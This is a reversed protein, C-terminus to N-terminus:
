RAREGSVSLLEGRHRHDHRDPSSTRVRIPSSPLRLLRHAFWVTGDFTTAGVTMSFADGNTVQPYYGALVYGSGFTFTISTSSYSLINLGICDGVTGATWDGDTFQISGGFDLGSWGCGAPSSAGLYAETGFGSGSVTMSPSGPTGGFTVGSIAPSGDTDFAGMDCPTTRPSGRQDTAPCLSGDTVADIAPSGAELAITQTPGGNSQLGNPDLMPDTDSLDGAQGTFHCSGDDDLNYGLDTITGNTGCDSGATSDALITAGIDLTAGSQQWIGGGASDAENGSFTSNTVDAAGVENLIAGGYNPTSDGSFTSNTVTLDGQNDIGGGEGIARNDSITSGDITATGGAVLIAGGGYGESTSTNGSFTSDTISLSGGSWIAGGYYQSTNDSFVCNSITLTGGNNYIAGGGTSTDSGDEITLGSISTTSSGSSYFLGTTGGGTVAMSSAGPGSITLGSINLRTSLVIGTCTLGPAFIIDDGQNANLVVNPLSGTTSSSGSCNTVVDTAAGAETTPLLLVSVSALGLTLSAVTLLTVAMRIRGM